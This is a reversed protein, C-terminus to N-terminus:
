ICHSKIVIKSKCNLSKVLKDWYNAIMFLTQCLIGVGVQHRTADSQLRHSLGGTPNTFTVALSFPVYFLTITLRRLRILTNYHHITLHIQRHMFQNAPIELRLRSDLMYGSSGSNVTTLNVHLQLDKGLAKWLSFSSQSWTKQLLFSKALNVGGRLRFSTNLTIARSLEVWVSGDRTVTVILVYKWYLAMEQCCNMHMASFSVKQCSRLQQCTPTMNQCNRM